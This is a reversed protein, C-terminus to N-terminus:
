GSDTYPQPRDFPRALGNTRVLTRHASTASLFEESQNCKGSYRFAFEGPRGNGCRDRRDDHGRESRGTAVLVESRSMGFLPLDMLQPPEIKRAIRLGKAIAADYGEPLPLWSNQEQSWVGSELGDFTQYYLALQGIRLFDVLRKQQGIHLEAQYAEITKSYDLEIRFVELLRRYKDAQDTDTNGPLKLLREIRAQREDLMFPLSSAMTQKLATVADSFLRNLQSDLLM